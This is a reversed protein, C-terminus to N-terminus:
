FLLDLDIITKMSKAVLNLAGHFGLFEDRGSQELTQSAPQHLDCGVFRASGEEFCVRGTGVDNPTGDNSWVKINGDYDLPERDAM